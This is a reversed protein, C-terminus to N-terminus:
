LQSSVRHISTDTVKGQFSKIQQKAYKNRHELERDLEINTDLNGKNNVFRNWRLEHSMGPPLLFEIQSLLHLTQFSYKTRKDIKFYLLFYKYIRILREGDGHKRADIFNKVIYTLVLANRSYNYLHDQEESIFKENKHKTKRHNKLNTISTFNNGCSVCSIVKDPEIEPVDPILFKDVLKELIEDMKQKRIVDNDDEKIEVKIQESELLEEYATLLLADSYKLLLEEAANVDKMPQSPM